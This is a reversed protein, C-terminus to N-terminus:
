VGLKDALTTVADGRLVRGHGVHVERAELNAIKRVTRRADEQHENLFKPPLTAAGRRSGVADGAILVGDKLLGIQGPTHGPLAIVTWGAVDDGDGVLDLAARPVLPARGLIKGIVPLPLVPRPREGTLYAADGRPAVIRYGRTEWLARANGVHDPHHHTLVVFDPDVRAFFTSVDGQRSTLGTDVVFTVDGSLVVHVNVGFSTSRIMPETTM